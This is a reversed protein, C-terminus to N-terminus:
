GLVGSAFLVSLDPSGKWAELAPHRDGPVIDTAGDTQRFCLLDRADALSLIVPSHTAIFVQAAYVSSLSQYVAEIARPHVGNEPEEILYIALREPLYALLTLALLRLSGDSIGWAPVSLGDDYDLALYLHKDWPQERVRVNVLDPLITQLHGVWDDFRQHHFEWLDRVVAPLNSGDPAFQLPAIPSCPRRMALSNLQLTQIGEMLLRKAWTAVPFKEEDEPLNALAMKRPGLRFLNNWDSTESRFYDNGSDSVKNVVRRWGAPTRKGMRMLNGPAAVKLYFTENLVRLEPHNIAREAGIRVEYRCRGHKPEKRRHDTPIALEIALAFSDGQRNFLLDRFDPTRREIAADLGDRLLDGLLRIVDLFTSKGSANPGVLVQFPRLREYSQWHFLSQPQPIRKLCRYNEAELYVIM